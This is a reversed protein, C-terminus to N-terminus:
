GTTRPTRSTSTATRPARSRGPPRSSVPVTAGAAGAQAVINGTSRNVKVIRYRAVDLVYYDTPTALVDVPTVEALGPGAYEKVFSLESPARTGWRTTAPTADLKGATDKARVNALYNGSGDAANAAAADFTWSWGTSAAGTNQLTAPTRAIGSQFTRTTPNWWLQSTRDRVAVEVQAVGVDDTATGTVTVPGFPLSPPPSGVPATIVTEPAAADAREQQPVLSTWPSTAVTPDPKDATDVARVNATFKGAAAGAAIAAPADFTLSWGTSTGGPATLTAPVRRIAQQFQGTEFNWWLLSDRDRVAVQVEKVAVDDTATGTITVPGAPQTSNKAPTTITTEPAAGDAPPTSSWAYSQVRDHFTDSVYLTNGRVHVSQPEFFPTPGDIVGTADGTGADMIVVRNAGTDAVYLRGQADVDAGEPKTLGTYTRVLSFSTGNTSRVRVVRNNAKDAVFLDGTAPDIGLGQPNKLGLSAPSVGLQQRTAVDYAVIRNNGTDVVFAIRDSDRIEIGAPFKLQNTALSTTQTCGADLVQLRNQHTDALWINGTADDVALDAPWNFGIGVTGRDGCIEFGTLQGNPAFKAYRHHMRDSVLLNGAADTDLGNPQNFLSTSTRGPKTAGIRETQGPVDQYSWGTPTRNFRQATFGWLDAGWVDGDSAVAVRRLHSFTGPTDFGGQGGAIGVFTGNLTLVQIRNNNSDAVYLLDQDRVPDHSIAVGYPNKYQGNGTGNSGFSQCSGTPSIKLINNRTYNAVYYNGAADRTVDRFASFTCNSGAVATVDAQTIVDRQEGTEANFIRIKMAGADAVIVDNGIATIGIPSKIQDGTPGRFRKQFVGAASLRVISTNGTDAVWVRGAGDVGIDRPNNIGANGFGHVGHSWAVTGNDLYKVVRDNGTDALVVGDSTTELGSPYVEARGPGGITKVFQPVTGSDAQATPALATLTVLATATAVTAAGARRCRDALRIKM